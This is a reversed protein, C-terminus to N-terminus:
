GTAKVLMEGVASLGPICIVTVPDPQPVDWYLPDTDKRLPQVARYHPPRWPSRPSPVSWFKIPCRSPEDTHRSCYGSQACSVTSLCMESSAYILRATDWFRDCTTLRGALIVSRSARAV